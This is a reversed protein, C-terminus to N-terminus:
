RLTEDLWDFVVENRFQPAMPACHYQAGDAVTFTVLDKPTPLLDYIQRAQGPFFQELEYATVLVPARVRGAVDGYRFRKMTSALLAFDTPVKGARAEELFQRAFIEARKKISFAQEPTLVPIVEEQWVRNQAAADGAAAVDRISAPWALWDDIVGPDAVVAALRHEFAAARTVLGGGLSWGTLAIRREDVDSRKRLWDVVPTIVKEWDYRFPIKREFLMAGQGPGEFLLANYGRAVAAAGGYAFVEVTQADSGNNVIVTPRAKGSDDPRMLYGPITTGQYPIRVRLIRPEALRCYAEWNARVRRFVAPERAPTATGLVFFLVQAYYEAARLHAERATVPDGGTRAKEAYAATRNALSSFADVFAVLTGGAANAQNIATIVEGVEASGYGAAGLAFRANFDLGTDTFFSLGPTVPTAAAPAAGPGARLAGALATGPIAAAGVVAGGAILSGRLVDRRSIAEARHLRDGM